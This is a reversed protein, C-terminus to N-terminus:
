TVSHTKSIFRVSTLHPQTCVQLCFVQQIFDFIELKRKRNNEQEIETLTNSKQIEKTGQM